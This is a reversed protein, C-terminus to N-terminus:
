GGRAAELRTIFADIAAKAEAPKEYVVTEVDPCGNIMASLSRGSAPRFLALVSTGHAVARGIEYGVGLSPTTVEAVMADCALLWALDQAHIAADGPGVTLSLDGQGVHETLVTGHTGLHAILEAYLKTDDRGGRISGAFYFTMLM